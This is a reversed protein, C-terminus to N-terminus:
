YHRGDEHNGQHADDHQGLANGHIRRSGYAIGRAIEVVSTQHTFIVTNNIKGIGELAATQVFHVRVLATQFPDIGQLHLINQGASFVEVIEAVLVVSKLSGKLTRERSRQLSFPLLEVERIRSTTM